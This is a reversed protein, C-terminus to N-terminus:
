PLAAVLARGGPAPLLDYASCSAPVLLTDLPELRETWGAGSLVVPAEIATVVQMTRGGPAWRSPADALDLTFQACRVLRGPAGGRRIGPRSEPVVATLAEETHLPREPTAPRGWDAVRYTLDSSQQVEYLLAGPGVAHLTGAPIMVSDGAEVLHRALLETTPAGRRIADRLDAQRVNARAGILLEAGPEADVVYWAESKGVADPGDLRRAVADDPHVQVSLWAAPDILKVLLPFRPGPGEPAASGVLARGLEVALDELTRGAHPGDAVQMGPGVVWLEGIPIARAPRLRSGGWPRESEFPVVRLPTLM